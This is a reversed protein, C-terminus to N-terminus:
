RDVMKRAGAIHDSSADPPHGVHGTIAYKCAYYCVLIIPCAIAAWTWGAIVAHELEWDRLNAIDRVGALDIAAAIPGVCIGAAIAARRLFSLDTKM